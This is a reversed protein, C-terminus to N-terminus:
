QKEVGNDDHKITIAYRMNGPWYELTIAVIKNEIKAQGIEALREDIIKKALYKGIEARTMSEIETM